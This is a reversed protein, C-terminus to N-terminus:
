RSWGLEALRTLYRHQLASMSYRERILQRGAKGLREGVQPNQALTHMHFAAADLDPSAWHYEREDDMYPYAGPPVRELTYDVLLATTSTCFDTVGSYATTIIPKGLAMADAPGYGFGESRHLSVYCDCTALLGTLEATTMTNDLIRIRSDAAATETLRRWHERDRDTQMAALNRTKLVLTVAETGAPFAKRFAQVIALPNKREVISGADFSFLFTYASQPLNFVSRDFRRDPASCEIAQGMVYVPVSVRKRYVDRLYETAVWIEHVLSLGCDHIASTDSLEWYFQGIRYASEDLSSLHCM